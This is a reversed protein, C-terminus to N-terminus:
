LAAMANSVALVQADSIATNYIAFAVITGDWYNTISSARHIAGIYISLTTGDFNGLVINEDIGNRFAKAGVCALVVDATELPVKTTAVNNGNNYAVGGVGNNALIYHGCTAIQGYPSRSNNAGADCRVIFTYANSNPPTVGTTLYTAAGDFTWGTAADWAPAVGPAADYTGDALGNGPAANNDYSAALSAAGKPTYAAICNAAAIGGSLYWPVAVAGGPDFAPTFGRFLGGFVM